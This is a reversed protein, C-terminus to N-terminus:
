RTAVWLKGGATCGYSREGSYRQLFEQLGYSQFAITYAEKCFHLWKWLITIEWSTSKIVLGLGCRKDVNQGIREQRKERREEPKRWCDIQIQFLNPHRLLSQVSILLTGPMATLWHSLAPSYTANTDIHMYPLKYRSDSRKLRISGDQNDRPWFLNWCRRM